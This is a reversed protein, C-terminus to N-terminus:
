DMLIIDRSFITGIWDSHEALQLANKKALKDRDIKVMINWMERRTGKSREVM